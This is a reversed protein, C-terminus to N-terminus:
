RIEGALFLKAIKAKETIRYIAEAKVFAEFLSSQIRQFRSSSRTSTCVVWDPEFGVVRFYYGHWSGDWSGDYYYVQNIKSKM